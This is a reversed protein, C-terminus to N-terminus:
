NSVKSKGDVSKSKTITKKPKKDGCMIKEMTRMQVPTYGFIQIMARFHSESDKPDTVYHLMSDKLFRLTAAAETDPKESEAYIDRRKLSQWYGLETETAKLKELLEEVTVKDPEDKAIKELQL